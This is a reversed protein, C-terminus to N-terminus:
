GDVNIPMVSTDLDPMADLASETCTRQTDRTQTFDHSVFVRCMSPVRPLFVYCERLYEIPDPRNLCGKTYMRNDNRKPRFGHIRRETPLAM